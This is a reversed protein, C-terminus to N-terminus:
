GRTNFVGLRKVSEGIGGVKGFDPKPKPVSPPTIPRQNQNPKKPTLAELKQQLAEPNKAMMELEAVTPMSSLGQARGRVFGRTELEKYVQEAHRSLENIQNQFANVDVSQVAMAKFANESGSLLRLMGKALELKSLANNIFMRASGAGASPNEMLGQLTEAVSMLVEPLKKAMKDVATLVNKKLEEPSQNHNFSKLIKTANPDLGQPDMDQDTIMLAEVEETTLDPGGQSALATKTRSLVMDQLARLKDILKQQAPTPPKGNLGLLIDRLQSRVEAYAKQLIFIANDPLGLTIAVWAIQLRRKINSTPDLIEQLIPNSEELASNEAVGSVDTPNTSDGTTNTDSERPTENAKIPEPSNHPTKFAAMNIANGMGFQAM